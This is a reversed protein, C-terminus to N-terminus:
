RTAARRFLWASTLWLAVFVGTLLLAQGWGAVLAIVGVLAQALAMAVLACALGAPRFRAALAGIVGVALVGGHMLNAPNDENGIVGVALNLWVLLFATALGVGVAAQYARDGTRRFALEFGGCVGALMAALIAFDAADWAMEDTVQMAALPLLLLLAAGGWVVLRWPSGRREVNGAMAVDGQM